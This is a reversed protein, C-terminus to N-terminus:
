FKKHFLNLYKVLHNKQIVGKRTLMETIEKDNVPYPLKNDTFSPLFRNKSIKKPKMITENITM